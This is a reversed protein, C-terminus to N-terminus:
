LYRRLRECYRCVRKERYVRLNPGSLPHNRKCHTKYSNPRSPDIKTRGKQHRDLVNDHNSGLFLHEPNVCIANDCRHLVCTGHYGDGKPIPGHTLVWSIRHAAEMRGNWRVSGYGKGRTTGQWIWCEANERKEVKEWFLAEATPNHDSM